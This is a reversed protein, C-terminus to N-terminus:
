AFPFESKFTNRSGKGFHLDAISAGAQKTELGPFYDASFKINGRGPASIGLYVGSDNSEPYKPQVWLAIM